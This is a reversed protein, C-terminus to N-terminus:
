ARLEEPREIADRWFVSNSNFCDRAEPGLHAIADLASVYPTFTGFVQDYRKFSYKMYRVHVKSNEFLDHDLYNMAGHGTLYVSGGVALTIDLLRKSSSGGIGLLSSDLFVVDKSCGLYDALALISARGLDHLFEFRASHVSDFLAVADDIWRLKKYSGILMNRHESVWDTEYSIQSDKILQKQRRGRLPVTMYATTGPTKIQVRNYFGRSLQVDDYHVFIDALHIQNLLGLWPFYMSQSIVVTNYKSSV